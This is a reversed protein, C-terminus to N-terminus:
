DEDDTSVQKPMKSHIYVFYAGVLFIGPIWWYLATV